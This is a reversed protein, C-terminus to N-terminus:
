HNPHLQPGGPAQRPRPGRRDAARSRKSSFGNWITPNKHCALLLQARLDNPLNEGYAARVHKLFEERDGPCSCVARCLSVVLDRTDRDAKKLAQMDTTGAGWDASTQVAHSIRKQANAAGHALPHTWELPPGLALIMQRAAHLDALVPWHEELGGGLVQQAEQISSLAGPLQRDADIMAQNPVRVLTVVSGDVIKYYSLENDMVECVDDQVALAIEPRIHVSGTGAWRACSDRALNRLEWLQMNPSVSVVEHKSQGGFEQLTVAITTVEIAM